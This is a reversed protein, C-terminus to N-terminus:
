RAFGPICAPGPQVRRRTPASADAAAQTEPDTASGGHSEGGAKDRQWSRSLRGEGTEQTPPDHEAKGLADGSKRQPAKQARTAAKGEGPNLEAKEREAVQCQRLTATLAM